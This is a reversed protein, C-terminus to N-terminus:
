DALSIRKAWRRTEEAEKRLGLRAHSKQVRELLGKLGALKFGKKKVTKRLSEHLYRFWDENNIAEAKTLAEEYFAKTKKWPGSFVTKDALLVNIKCLVDDSEVKKALVAAEDLLSNAKRTKKLNIHILALDCMVLACNKTDGVERFLNCAEQLLVLAKSFKGQKLYISGKRFHAIALLDKRGFHQALDETKKGYIFADKMKGEEMLSFTMRGYCRVLLPLPKLRELRIRTKELIDFARVHNGRRQDLMAMNFLALSQLINDGNMGAITLAESWARDAAAYDNMRFFVLGLTNTAGCIIRYDGTARAHVRAEEAYARARKLEGKRYLVEAAVRNLEARHGKTLECKLGERALQLAKENEGKKLAARAEEVVNNLASQEMAPEGEAM